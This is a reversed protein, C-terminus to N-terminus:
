SLSGVGARDYSGGHLTNGAVAVNGIRTLVAAILELDHQVRGHDNDAGSKGPADTYATGAEIATLYAESFGCLAAVKATTSGAASIAATVRGGIAAFNTQVTDIAM